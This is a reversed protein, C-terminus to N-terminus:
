MMEGQRVCARGHNPHYGLEAEASKRAAIAADINKFKGIYRSRGKDGIRAIWLGRSKDYTVGLAGSRSEQTPRRNRGNEETTAERLNCIRNDRRVGNIHDLALSPWVGYHMAWAARHGLLRAGGICSVCYGNADVYGFAEKDAYRGNFQRNPCDRGGEPLRLWVFKGTEADYSVRSRLVDIALLHKPSFRM